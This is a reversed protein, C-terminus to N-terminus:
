KYCKQWQVRWGSRALSRVQEVPAKAEERVVLNAFLRDAQVDNDLTKCLKGHFHSRVFSTLVKACITKGLPKPVASWRANCSLPSRASDSHVLRGSSGYSAFHNATPAQLVLSHGSNSASVAVQPHAKAFKAIAQSVTPNPPLCSRPKGWHHWWSDKSFSPLVCIVM